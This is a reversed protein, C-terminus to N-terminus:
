RVEQDVARRPNGHAHGRVDRRVTEVLDARRQELEQVVGVEAASLEASVHLSRFEGGATLYEIRGLLELRHVLGARSGDAHSARPLEPRGATPGPRHVDRTKRVHHVLRLQDLPNGVDHERPLQRGQEVDLIERGVIHADRQLELPVGVVLLHHGVQALVRRQLGAERDVQGAQDRRFIGLDTPGLSEVEMREEPVVQVEPELDDRLPELVLEGRELLPDM